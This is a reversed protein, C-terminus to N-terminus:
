RIFIYDALETVQLPSNQLFSAIIKPDRGVSRALADVHPLLNGKAAERESARRLGKLFQSKKWSDQFASVIRDRCEPDHYISAVFAFPHLDEIKSGLSIMELANFTIWIWGHDALYTIITRITRKEEETAYLIDMSPASPAAPPQPTFIITVSSSPPLVIAPSPSSSPAHAVLTPAPLPTKDAKKFPGEEHLYEWVRKAAFFVTAVALVNAVIDCLVGVVHAVVLSVRFSALEYNATATSNLVYTVFKATYNGYLWRSFLISEDERFTFTHLLHTHSSPASVSTM